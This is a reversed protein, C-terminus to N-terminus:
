ENIEKITNVLKQNSTQLEEYMKRVKFLDNENQENKEERLRMTQLYENLQGKLDEVKGKMKQESLKLIENTETLFHIREEQKQNLIRDKQM